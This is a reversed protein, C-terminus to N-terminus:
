GPPLSGFSIKEAVLGSPPAMPAACGTAEDPLMGGVVWSAHGCLPWQVTVYLPGSEMAPCGLVYRPGMEGCSTVSAVAEM